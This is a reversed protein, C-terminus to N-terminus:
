LFYTKVIWGVGLAFAPNAFQMCLPKFSKGDHEAENYRYRVLGSVICIGIAALISLLPLGFLPAIFWGWLVSLAYGRWIVLVPILLFIGALAFIAVAAAEM